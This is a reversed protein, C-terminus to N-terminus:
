TSVKALVKALSTEKQEQVKYMHRVLTRVQTSVKALVKSLFTEKQEQVKYM